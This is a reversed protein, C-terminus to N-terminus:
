AMRRSSELWVGNAQPIVTRNLSTVLDSDIRLDYHQMCRCSLEKSDSCIHVRSLPSSFHIKKISIIEATDVFREERLRKARTLQLEESWCM